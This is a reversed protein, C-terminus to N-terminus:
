EPVVELAQPLRKLHPFHHRPHHHNLSFAEDAPVVLWNIGLQNSENSLMEM